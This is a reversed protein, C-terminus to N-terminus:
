EKLGFNVKYADATGGNKQGEGSKEIKELDFNSLKIQKSNQLIESNEFNKYNQTKEHTKPM